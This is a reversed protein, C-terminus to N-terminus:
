VLVRRAWWGARVEFGMAGAVAEFMWNDAIGIGYVLGSRNTLADGCAPWDGIYIIEECLAGEDAGVGPNLATFFERMVERDAESGQWAPVLADGVPTQWTPPGAEQVKWRVELGVLGLCALGLLLLRSPKLRLRSPPGRKLMDRAQFIRSLLGAYTHTHSVTLFLRV